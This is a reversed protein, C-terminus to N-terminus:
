PYTFTLGCSDQATAILSTRFLNVGSPVSYQLAVPSSTGAGVNGVITPLATFLAVGNTSHSGTIQVDVADTGQGNHIWYTVSLLQQQYDAYSAWFARDLGVGLEPKAYSCNASFTYQFVGAETGSFLTKDNNFNPSTSIADVVNGVLGGNNMSTWSKGKDASLFVKNYTGAFIAGDQSFNLSMAVSSVYPSLPSSSWNSGGDSSKFLGGNDVSFAISDQDFNPSLALISIQPGYITSPLGNNLFGYWNAGGDPSNFIGGMWNVGWQDLIDGWTGAYVNRDIVPSGNSLYTHGYNPSFAIATVDFGDKGIEKWSAGRDTSAFIGGGMSCYVGTYPSYDNRNVLGLIIQGDNAFDPSLKVTNIEDNFTSMSWTSGGDTSRYLVNLSAGFITRDSAYDPSIALISGSPAIRNWSVGRDTSKFMGADTGAFITGDNAYGPSVAISLVDAATIGTSSETWSAGADSSIFFGGSNSLGFIRKDTGFGPSFALAGSFNNKTWSAGGDTSEFNGNWTTAFLIGDGTFNPSIALASLQTSPFSTNLAGWSTGANTSKFVEVNWSGAFLTMDGSFGPSIALADIGTDAPFGTNIAIWSAGSNVSRYVGNDTGFFVTHDSAYGPSIALSTVRVAYLPLGTDIAQWSVGGDSSKYVGSDTGAFITQDTDFAPSIVLSRVYTNAPFGTTSLPGAQAEMRPDISAM